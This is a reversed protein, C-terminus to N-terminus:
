GRGLDQKNWVAKQKERRGLQRRREDELALLNNTTRELYLEWRHLPEMEDLNQGPNAVQIRGYADCIRDIKKNLEGVRSESEQRRSTAQELKAQLDAMRKRHRERARSKTAHLSRASQSGAGVGAISRGTSRISSTSSRSTGLKKQKKKYTAGLKAPGKFFKTQTAYTDWYESEAFDPRRGTRHTYGIKDPRMLLTMWEHYKTDRSSSRGSAM